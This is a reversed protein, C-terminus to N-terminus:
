RPGGDEGLLKKRLAPYDIGKDDLLKNENEDLLKGKLAPDDVVFFYALVDGSKNRQTKLGTVEPVGNVVDIFYRGSLNFSKGRVEELTKFKHNMLSFKVDVGRGTPEMAEEVVRVDARTLGPRLTIWKPLRSDSTLEWISEICGSIACCSLCIAVNDDLLKKRVAPYDLGYDALLKTENEDLLKRKLAPDDVVFFYPMDVGHENIHHTLGTVEPVGDVVDIFYRGSLNFSKGRVEELTKFKHNILSFKVDVGRRTPEMGELVVRVDARTLGPPLTIWKPLRSDSTLEGIWEICGSIACSSICLAVILLCKNVRRVINPMALM